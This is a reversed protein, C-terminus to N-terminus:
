MVKRRLRALQVRATAPAIGLRRAADAESAGSAILALLQRQRPSALKLAALLRASTEARDERELLIALPDASNDKETDLPVRVPSGGHRRREWIDTDGVTPFPRELVASEAAEIVEARFWAWFRDGELDDPAVAIRRGNADKLWQRGFRHFQPRQTTGLVLLIASYLEERKVATVTTGDSAARRSLARKIAPSRVAWPIRNSMRYLAGLRLGPDANPQELIDLDAAPTRLIGWSGLAAHATGLLREDVAFSSPDNALFALGIIDRASAGLDHALSVLQVGRSLEHAATSDDLLRLSASTPELGVPLAFPSKSDFAAVSLRESALHRGACVDLAVKTMGDDLLSRVPQAANLEGSQGVDGIAQGIMPGPSLTLQARLDIALGVSITSGGSVEDFGNLATAAGFFASASITSAAEALDLGVSPGIAAQIDFRPQLTHRARRRNHFTADTATASRSQRVLEDIRLPM